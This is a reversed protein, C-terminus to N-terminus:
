HRPLSLVAELGDGMNRLQLTGGHLQAVSRAITLGLGTGGGDRGRSGELRHFPEFVRELESEPIGPGRDRVRITLREPGDEVALRAEKGYKIANEILNVLCRKLAQPRGVYPSRAAGEITVQGGTERADEQLSELLAAVDVPQAREGTELGRMFDLTAVVMSEMEVLDNTFKTKAEGDELLEARLRMRTIPTKLDHSMAAFVRTREQIYRALRSQMRNFARAARAVEHPGQEPLPPRNIDRGLEEAANALTALPRTVWRAALLTLAVVAGMLIAISALLRYPWSAAEVPRRTDFSAWSGDALRVRALFSHQPGMRAHMGPGSPGMGMGGAGRRAGPPFPHSEVQSAVLTMERGEGLMRRLMTGMFAAQAQMDPDEGAAPAAAAAGLTVILPPSDFLGAIRQREAPAVSDLLKVIDAVRQASQLGSARYLLEGREHLHVAMSLAQAAVLGALLVAVIRGFLSRPALRM